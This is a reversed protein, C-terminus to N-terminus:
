LAWRPLTRTNTVLASGDAQLHVRSLDGSALRRAEAMVVPHVRLHTVVPGSRTAQLNPRRRTAMAVVGTSLDTVTAPAVAADHGLRALQRNPNSALRPLRQRNPM